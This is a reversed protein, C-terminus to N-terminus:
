VTLVTVCGPCKRYHAALHEHRGPVVFGREFLSMDNNCRLCLLGRVLMHIHCHDFMLKRLHVNRHDEPPYRSAYDAVLGATTIGCVECTGDRPYRAGINKTWHVLGYEAIFMPM